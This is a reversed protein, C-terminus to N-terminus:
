RNIWPRRAESMSLAQGQSSYKAGEASRLSIGVKLCLREPGQEPPARHKYGEGVSNDRETLLPIYLSCCWLVNREAPARTILLHSAIFM